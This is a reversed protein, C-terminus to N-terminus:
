SIIGLDLLADKADRALQKAPNRYKLGSAPHRTLISDMM